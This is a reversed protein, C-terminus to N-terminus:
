STNRGIVVLTVLVTNDAESGINGESCFCELYVTTGAVNTVRAFVHQAAAGASPDNGWSDFATTNTWLSFGSLVAYAAYIETFDGSVDRHWSTTGDGTNQMADVYTQATVVSPAHGSVDLDGTIHLTSTDDLRMATTGGGPDDQNDSHSGGRFWCFDSDSRLYMTYNQIGIGYNTSWLDILQGLRSGFELSGSLILNSSSDLRMALTGGGPDDQGNSHSGGRFWCFDSDSRFYLTSDQVGIGYNIGWLNLMQQTTEGFQLCGSSDLALQLQGGSGAGGSTGTDDHKGGKFWRFAYDSRFYMATPSAQSGSDAQVGLGYQHGGGSAYLDIMQRTTDDFTLTGQPIEVVDNGVVRVIDSPTTSSDSQDGPGITLVNTPDPSSGLRLRLVNGAAGGAPQERGLTIPANDEEEKAYAFHVVGGNVWIDADADIRGEVRLRGEVTAFDAADPDPTPDSPSTTVRPSIELMDSPSLLASAVVGVYSRQEMLRSGATGFQQATGDWMVTGLRVLWRDGPSSEPLEQYPVSEDDPILPTTAPPPTTASAADSDTVASSGDVTIPDDIPQPPSVVITWGETTRTAESDQCDEWDSSLGGSDTEQYSLWVSQYGDTNFAAFAGPDLRISHYSVLERGFGDVAAGPTLVVDYYSSGSIAVEQLEFGVVIGWTHHALLHRRRADRDYEQEVEFDVARLFQGDFYKVRLIQDDTAM